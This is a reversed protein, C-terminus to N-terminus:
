GFLGWNGKKKPNQLPKGCASRALVRLASAAPSKDLILANGTNAARHAAAFDNPVRWKPALGLAKAVGEDDFEVKRPDYRNIIIEIRYDGSSQMYSIFRRTSHLSPIDLQTVVYIVNAMQFVREVEAGLSPGADIVVWPYQNRALDIFKAVAREEIALTPCFTDPAAIFSVGSKHETVLTSLFESDLRKASKLAEAVTFRPTIGLLVSLGGLQPNLDVLLVPAAAEARLAMSFNAALTSVGSGGKAAWFVITKGIAKKLSQDANRAMARLLAERLLAAPIPGSLFERAGARMSSVMREPDTSASYVIVTASPRRSCLAEVLDLALDQESDIEVIYADCGSELLMPLQAYGPYADYTAVIKAGEAETTRTLQARHVENPCVLVVVAHRPLGTASTDDRAAFDAKSQQETKLDAQGKVSLNFIKDM